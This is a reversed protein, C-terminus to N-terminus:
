TLKEAIVENIMKVDKVRDLFWGLSRGYTIDHRCNNGSFVFLDKNM